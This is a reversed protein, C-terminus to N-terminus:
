SISEKKSVAKLRSYSVGKLKGFDIIKHRLILPIKM